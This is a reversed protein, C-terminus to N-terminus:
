QTSSWGRNYPFLPLKSGPVYSVHIAYKSGNVTLLCCASTPLYVMRGMSGISYSGHIKQQSVFTPLKIIFDGRISFITTGEYFGENALNLFKKKM